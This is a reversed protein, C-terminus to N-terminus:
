TERSDEPKEPPQVSGIMQWCNAWTERLDHSVGCECEFTKSEPFAKAGEDLSRAPDLNMQFIHSRKCNKCELEARARKVTRLNTLLKALEQDTFPKRLAVETATVLIRKVEQGDLSLRLWYRGPAPLALGEVQTVAEGLQPFRVKEASPTILVKGKDDLLAVEQSFEGEGGMYSIYIAMRRHVRPFVFGNINTFIGECSLKGQQRSVRDCTLFAKVEPLQKSM